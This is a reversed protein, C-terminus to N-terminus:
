NCARLQILSVPKLKLAMKYAQVAGEKDGSSILKDALKLHEDINPKSKMQRTKKEEKRDMDMTVPNSWVDEQTESVFM